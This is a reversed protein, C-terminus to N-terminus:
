NFSPNMQKTAKALRSTATVLRAVACGVLIEACLAQDVMQNVVKSIPLCSALLQQNAYQVPYNSTPYYLLTGFTLGLSLKQCFRYGDVVQPIAFPFFSCVRLIRVGSLSALPHVIVPESVLEKRLQFKAEIFEGEDTMGVSLKALDGRGRLLNGIAEIRSKM